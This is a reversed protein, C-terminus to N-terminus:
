KEGTMERRGAETIRVVAHPDDKGVPTDTGIKVYEIWGRELLADYIGGPLPQNNMVALLAAGSEARSMNM